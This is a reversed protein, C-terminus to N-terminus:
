DIPRGPKLGAQSDVYDNVVRELLSLPLGGNDIVVDHFDKLHFDPGLTAEAKQRLSLVKLYGLYYACAQGPMVIYREVETVVDREPLGTVAEMYAIAEERTWQKVHIGTDVVLRAARWILAQLRGLNSLADELGLEWGLREAYLAWGEVYANFFYTRRFTPLGKVKQAQAMQYVHGPIGEHYALTRMGWAYIDKPDRLNLWMTGPRSGDMAPPQAYAIPSDPEKYDPLRKVAIEGLAGYTFVEPLRQNVEDLIAQYRDLIAERASEGTFHYQSDAMLAKLQEGPNASPLGLDSLASKIEDTLREVESLGLQHVEDPSLDTTTHVRLLFAYYAEGEPLKWVGDEETAQTALEELVMQLRRYAPFVESKIIERVKAGWRDAAKDNFCKSERAKELFSTFLPNDDAPDALFGEIQELCKDIVFRPPNAGAKASATLSEGLGAFKWSIKELRALYRRASRRGKIKHHTCLFQILDVQPGFIHNVPYPGMFVPNAAWHYDFRHGRLNAEFYWRMLHYTIWEQGHLKKPDYRQILAMGERDLARLRAMYSPSIDTLSGSHFDFLTNDLLGLQTFIEPDNLVMRLSLREVAWNIFPPVGWVIVYLLWTLVLVLLSLGAILLISM